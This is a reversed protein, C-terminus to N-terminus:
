GFIVQQFVKNDDQVKIPFLVEPYYHSESRNIFEPIEYSILRQFLYSGHLGFEYVM